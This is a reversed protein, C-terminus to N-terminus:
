TPTSCWQHSNIPNEMKGVTASFQWNADHIPSWKGYALDIYVGKESFNDQMTSNRSLPNGVINESTLSGGKADGSGLRFGAELDNLMNVKMGVLLRYRLRTRDVAADNPASFQEFRGRVSGNISYSNVWDPMGTKAQFATKFDNDADARLDQAEKTTLIGKDVLKDILADSSQAHSTAALALTAASAFLAAKTTTSTKRRYTKKM